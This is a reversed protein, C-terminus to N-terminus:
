QHSKEEARMPGHLEAIPTRCVNMACREEITMVKQLIAQATYALHDMALERERAREDDKAAIREIAAAMSRQAEANAKQAEASAQQAAASAATTELLKDGFRQGWRDLLMLLALVVAFLPGWSTLVALAAQPSGRMIALLAYAIVGATGSMVWTVVNKPGSAM